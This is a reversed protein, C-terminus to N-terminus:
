FLKLQRKGKPPLVHEPDVNGWLTPSLPDVDLGVVREVGWNALALCDTGQGCGIDLVRDELTIMGAALLTATVPSIGPRGLYTM